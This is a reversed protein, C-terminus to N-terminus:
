KRSLAEKLRDKLVKKEATIRAELTPQSLIPTAESSSKTPLGCTISRDSDPAELVELPCSLM